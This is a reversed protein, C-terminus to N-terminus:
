RLWSVGCVRELPKILSPDIILDKKDGCQGLINELKSQSILSLSSLKHNLTAEM